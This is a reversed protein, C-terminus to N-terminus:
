LQNREDIVLEAAQMNRFWARMAARRNAEEEFKRRCDSCVNYRKGYDVFDAQEKAENCEHCYKQITRKRM